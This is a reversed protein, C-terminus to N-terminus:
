KEIPVKCFTLAAIGNAGMLLSDQSWTTEKLYTILKASSAEKLTLTLVNGKVSGSAVKDKEDDLYFQGVLNESWVVPQDFELAIADKTAGTYYARRLNPSTISTTPAKGYIDREILPQMLRAFEAWGTLPYHCGGAPKIGLTSMIDMNSYLRPLTRQAERLRDGAGDQGGGACANPWIQFLYYHQLNPFDQKWAVSMDSFLQHYTECGERGMPGGASQEAEGQHWIVARIGHTLRAQQVRWLMRGYITTLDTPNAEDRQHQDIRTGGVAGNIICVPMKQSAVLRKALEMGWWGLEAKEGKEAKWVPYCWLNGQNDKPNQSPRGYSRIWESTDPPSKEATDTALANSQGDILYADGCVLNSVTDIALETGSTNTGFEVKYKILGAKLKVSFTYFKDAKLSQRETKILKDDAYVKLYVADASNSLTGNYYLTGENQDDRAYFQGDQPKEDKEPTRQVLKDKKPEKVVIQITKEIPAGGNSLNATVTLKGSNLAHKLILKGSAVDKIVPMGSVTWDYKIEGANQKQMDNLNSIQPVIEITERGDWKLPAKLTFVPDVIDEQILVPIDITKVGDAFVAKCQLILSEDKTVRGADVTFTFRDMATITELGDRKVIWSIKQAGGAKATVNISKGEKLTIKKVSASFDMGSQVLPGVVTQMPKQNEYCLKMWNASRAAGEFRVEDLSGNFPGSGREHNGVNVETAAPTKLTGISTFKKGSPDITQDLVGDIYFRVMDDSVSLAVHHWQRLPISTAGRPDPGYFHFRLQGKGVMSMYSLTHGPGVGPRNEGGWGGITAAAWNLGEYSTPYIWASMSRDQNGSPMCTVKGDNKSGPQRITLGKEMGFVRGGGIIGPANITGKDVNNTGDLNNSTSDELNDGLHWVGAFGADTGFVKEGDSESSADGKGWYIKIEQRANGKISPLRVWISAAGKETDWEEIEYALPEGNKTSFRLDAGDAKAKSFDFFDKNLRVLLPFDKETASAPLNAGEPTTLIFMSGSHQWGPYQAAAETPPLSLLSAVLIFVKVPRKFQKKPDGATGNEAMAMHAMLLLKFLSILANRMM